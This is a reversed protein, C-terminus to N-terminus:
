MESVRQELGDKGALERLEAAYREIAASDAATARRASRPKRGRLGQGTLQFVIREIGQKAGRFHDEIHLERAIEKVQASKLLKAMQRLEVRVDDPIPSGTPM